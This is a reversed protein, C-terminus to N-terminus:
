DGDEDKKKFSLIFAIAVVVPWLSIVMLRSLMTYEGGINQFQPEGNRKREYGYEVLAAIILGIVIYIVLKDNLM